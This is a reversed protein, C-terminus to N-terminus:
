DLDAAPWESTRWIADWLVAMLDGTLVSGNMTVAWVTRGGHGRVLVATSGPLAGDHWWTRGDATEQVWWGLAYYHASGAWEPLRPRNLMAEVTASELLDEPPVESDVALGFRVLDVASALWGGHADMAELHFAGYPPSVTEYPPFVSTSLGDFHYRVEGPARDAVRSRGLRAGTVGLPALVQDRVHEEYPRGTVAEIVRGLVAYGFNSYEFRSGPDFQLPQGRMYRVIDDVSAPATEGLEEAIERALFMPRLGADEMDWGGAHMLLNEITIQALRPDEETGAPAPLHDLYAFAPDDLRLVGGEVLDLVTVATIAKSVSAVRFLADPLVPEGTDTDAVGYGRAFVLRGDHAIAVVAGPAGRSALFAPMISDFHALEAVRQGSGTHITVHAEGRIDELTGALTARGPSRLTALGTSDVTAVTTDSSTWEVGDRSLVGGGAARAVATLRLTDGTLATVSRPLLTLSVVPLDVSVHVAGTAEGLQAEIWTAGDGVATVRRAADVTAVRDDAPFWSVRPNEEAVNGFRDVGTVELRATDGLATFRVSDPHVVLAATPGPQGVALFSVPPLGEVAAYVEQPGALPALRWRVRAEGNRDTPTEFASLDGVWEATGLRWEVMVGQLPRGESEVRVVLSDALLESVQGFQEDGGVVVLADPV